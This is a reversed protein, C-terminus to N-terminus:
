RRTERRTSLVRQLRGMQPRLFPFLVLAASIVIDTVQILNEPALTTTRTAELLDISASTVHLAAVGAMIMLGSFSMDFQRLERMLSTNKYRLLM